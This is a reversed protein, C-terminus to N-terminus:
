VLTLLICMEKTWLEETTQAIQLNNVLRGEDARVKQLNDTIGDAPQPRAEEIRDTLGPTKGFYQYLSEL